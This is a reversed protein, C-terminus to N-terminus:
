KKAWRTLREMYKPWEAKFNKGVMESVKKGVIPIPVEIDVWMTVATSKGQAALTTGGTIKAKNSMENGGKWKWTSVGKKLDWEVYNTNNETKKKDIGTLGVAYDVSHMEFVHTDATKKVDIIKMSVCNRSKADEEILAPDRMATLVKDLPADITFTQEIKM